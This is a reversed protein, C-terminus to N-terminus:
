KVFAALLLCPCKCVCEVCDRNCCEGARACCEASECLCNCCSSCCKGTSGSCKSLCNGLCDCCTCTCDHCWGMCRTCCDDCCMMCDTCCNCNSCCHRYICCDCNACRSCCDHAKVGTHVMNEAVNRVEKLNDTADKGLGKVIETGVNLADNPDFRGSLVAERFEADVVDRIICRTLKDNLRFWSNMDHGSYYNNRYYNNGYYNNNSYSEDDQSYSQEQYVYYRRNSAYYARRNQREARKYHRKRKYIKVTKCVQDATRLYFVKAKVVLVLPREYIPCQNYIPGNPAPQLQPPPIQQMAPPFPLNPQQGNLIIEPNPPQQLIQANINLESQNVTNFREEETEQDRKRCLFFILILVAFVAFGVIIAILVIDVAM